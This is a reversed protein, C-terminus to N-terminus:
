LPIYIVPQHNPVNKIKGYIPFLWGLQSEYKESPNLGGVLESRHNEWSFVDMQEGPPNGLWPWSSDRLTDNIPFWRPIQHSVFNSIRASSMNPCFPLWFPIFHFISLRLWMLNIISSPNWHSIIPYSSRCCSIIFTNHLANAEKNAM